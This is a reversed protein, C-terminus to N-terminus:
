RMRCIDIALIDMSPYELVKRSRRSCRGSCGRRMMKLVFLALLDVGGSGNQKRGHVRRQL